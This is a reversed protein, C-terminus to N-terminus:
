RDRFFSALQQVRETDVAIPVEVAKPAREFGDATLGAVLHGDIGDHAVCAVVHGADVALPDTIIPQPSHDLVHPL